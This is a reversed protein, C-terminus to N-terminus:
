DTNLSRNSWSGRSGSLGAQIKRFHYRKCSWTLPGAEMQCHGGRQRGGWCFGLGTTKWSSPQPASALSQRVYFQLAPPPFPSSGRAKSFISSFCLSAKGRTPFIRLRMNVATQSAPLLDLVTQEQICLSRNFKRIILIISSTNKKREKKRKKLNQNTFLRGAIHSVQTWDSPQSSGRSFLFAVWELIRARLIGCVTYGM